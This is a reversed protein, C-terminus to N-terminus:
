GVSLPLRLRECIIAVATALALLLGLENLYESM